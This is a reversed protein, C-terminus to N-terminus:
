ALAYENAIRMRWFRHASMMLPAMIVDEEMGKFQQKLTECVKLFRETARQGLDHQCTIRTTRDNSPVYDPVDVDSSEIIIEEVGRKRLVNIVPDSLLTGAHVLLAGGQLVDRGVRMGPKLEDIEIEDFMM